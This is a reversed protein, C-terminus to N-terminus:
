AAMESDCSLLAYECRATAFVCLFVLSDFACSFRNSEFTTNKEKWEKAELDAIQNYANEDANM